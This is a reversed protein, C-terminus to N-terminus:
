KVLLLAIENILVCLPIELDVPAQMTKYVRNAEPLRGKTSVVETNKPVFINIINVAENLLGGGNNRLDLILGQLKPDNEKLKLLADKVTNSCNM